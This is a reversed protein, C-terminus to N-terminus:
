PATVKFNDFCANTNGSWTRLGAEGSTYSDDQGILVTEGDVKATFTDGQVVIEIHREVGKWQYGSPPASRAFPRREYGNVWERFLFAGRGYGPDYQFIYGQLRGRDNFSTRFYVGYGWGKDLLADVSVTYDDGEAGITYARGGGRICLRGDQQKWRGDPIKWKSLDDSFDDYFLIGSTCRDSEGGLGALVRCFVDGLSVGMLRLVGVAVLLVLALLLALEVLSQGREQLSSFKKM